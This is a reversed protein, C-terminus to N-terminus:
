AINAIDSHFLGRYPETRMPPKKNFDSFWIGQPKVKFFALKSLYRLAHALQKAGSLKKFYM